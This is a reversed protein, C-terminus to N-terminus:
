PSFELAQSIYFGSRIRGIDDLNGHAQLQDALAHVRQPRMVPSRDRRPFLKGTYWMVQLLPTWPAVTFLVKQSPRQGLASVAKTIESQDYYILSDMAFVYDFQGLNPDLMDGSSYTIQSQLDAPTRRRAIEILSPSIDIAVVEAGREAAIQSLMGTGCGADLIRAGSLDAPVRSLLLARMQDRGERVTQRITSLPADSTLQEWTKTATKDFYNAVRDLTQDYAM